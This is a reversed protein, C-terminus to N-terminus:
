LGNQQVAMHQNLGCPKRVAPTCAGTGLVASRGPLVWAGTQGGTPFKQRSGYTSMLCLDQLDSDASCLLVGLATLNILRITRLAACETMAIKRDAAM